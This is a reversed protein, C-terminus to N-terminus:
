YSVTLSDCRVLGPANIKYVAENNNFDSPQLVRQQSASGETTRYCYRVRIPGHVTAADAVKFHITNEGEFIQPISMIGNEFFATLELADLGAPATRGANPAVRVRVQFRYVGHISVNKGNFRERGLAVSFDGPMAALKEWRSWHDPESENRPKAQLTRIEIVADGTLTGRLTGDVLIYPSYFDFTASGGDPTKAPRLCPASASRVLDSDPTLLSVSEPDSFDPKYTLRGWAQGITRDGVMQEDYGEGAPVTELYPKAKQYNPDHKPWNGDFMKESVRYFRGSPLFPKEKTARPAAPIYFKRATNDWFREITMGKALRFNMDHYRTGAEYMGNGFVCEVPRGAAIWAPEDKYYCRNIQLARKWELSPYEFFPRSRYKYHKNKFLNEDVGVEPWDLVRADPADHDILYYGYRADFAGYNGDLRLRYMTHFGGNAHMTIVREASAPDGTYQQWAAEAIRSHTDCFGWGYVFLNKRVDAVSREKGYAGESAQIMGGVAMRNFLRLWRFFAKGRATESANELGELRMVDQTWSKLDTTRPWNESIVLPGTVVAPKVPPAPSCACVALFLFFPVTRIM